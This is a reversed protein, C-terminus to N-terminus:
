EAEQEIIIPVRIFRGSKDPTINLLDEVPMSPQAEDARFVNTSGHVHSMAQVNSTDIKNLQQVYDIISGINKAFREVEGPGLELRALHALKRVEDEGIMTIYIASLDENPKEKLGAKCTHALTAYAGPLM